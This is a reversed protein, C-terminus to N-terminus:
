KEGGEVQVKEGAPLLFFREGEDYDEGRQPSSVVRIEKSEGERAFNRRVGEKTFNRRVGEKLLPPNPTSKL